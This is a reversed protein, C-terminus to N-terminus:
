EPFKYKETVCQHRKSKKDYNIGALLLDGDYGQLASVYKKEKIQQIAGAASHNYKLEIVLAPKDINRKPIYVIDAFGQGAPLERIKTYYNVASYYALSIVCALSNEDNYALISTQSMHVKDIIEEMRATDMNWTARLLEESGQILQVVEKWYEGEVANTFEGQIEGNPIYVRSTEKKYALYGLHVLLTLVDDKTRFTKMDNQFKAPNVTVQEGALMRIVADKLGDFNMEIYIKLAEYTETKTWYSEFSGSLVAATVSRPNYIHPINGLTYGDYWQEMKGFDIGYSDCLSHVEQETFGAYEAFQLPLTMSYEEFMNLASHTGYKKVPLIGTMYALATYGNDKLLDRLFDLYKEQEEDAIRRDRFICDWEDIIFIFKEKTRSYLRELAASLLSDNLLVFEPYAEQLDCIVEKQIYALMSEVTKTRSVANQMNLAIVPFRNQYKKYDASRAIKYPAFLESSDYGKEYYATLMNAAMSKGFRRPRSICVYCQETGLVRNTEAILGTKDVYIESSVAREFKDPGPNLYIGMMYRWLTQIFASLIRGEEM